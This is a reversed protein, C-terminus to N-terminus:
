IRVLLLCGISVGHMDRAGLLWCVLMLLLAYFISKGICMLPQWLVPSAVVHVAMEEMKFANLEEKIMQALQPTLRNCTACEGRRDYEASHWTERVELRPIFQIVRKPSTGGTPTAPASVNYIDVEPNENETNGVPTQTQSSRFHSM